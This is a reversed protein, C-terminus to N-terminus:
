SRSNSAQNYTRLARSEVATFFDITFKINHNRAEPDGTGATASLLRARYNTDGIAMGVEKLIQIRGYSECFGSPATLNAFIPGGSDLAELARVIDKGAAELVSDGRGGNEIAILSKIAKRASLALSLSDGPNGMRNLM